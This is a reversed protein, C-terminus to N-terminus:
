GAPRKSHRVSAMVAVAAASCCAVAAAAAPLVLLACCLGLALLVPHQTTSPSSLPSSNFSYLMRVKCQGPLSNSSELSALQKWGATFSVQCSICSFGQLLLPRLRLLLLASRAVPTALSFTM